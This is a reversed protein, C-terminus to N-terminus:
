YRTKVTHYKTIYKYYKNDLKYHKKYNQLTSYFFSIDFIHPKGFTKIGLYHRSEKIINIDIISSYDNFAIQRTNKDAIIM